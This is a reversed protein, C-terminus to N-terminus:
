WIMINTPVTSPGPEMKMMSAPPRLMAKPRELPHDKRTLRTGMEM